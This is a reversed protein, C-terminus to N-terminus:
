KVKVVVFTIDDQNPQCDCWNEGALVLEQIIERSSKNASERFASQVRDYNFQEKNSDFLEVLGDSLFLLADGKKLDLEKLEYDLDVFAGLPMGKLVIKDVTRNAKRFHFFPPMGASSAILKNNKIKILTLAMFLNGFKMKKITRTCKEFMELIDLHQADSTFAWKIASVMIGAKLGHGTADGVAINLTGDDSEFFDYYDGGVEAATKMYVAIELDPLDPVDNPLMSLQLKRAEELELTKRDDESKIFKAQAEAAQARLEAEVVKSKERERHILRKRQVRDVALVGAVFILAYFIFAWKTRWVPPSVTIQISAGEENWIADNNSGKVRFIYTGPNLNTFTVYHRNGASVWEKNFKELKYAFQNKKPFTYCLAAFDISFSNQDYSLQINEGLDEKLSVRSVESKNEAKNLVQFDTIVIPPIFANDKVSDPFFYNFGNIGGFYMMRDSDMYYSMVNFENSQLGDSVDFNRIDGTEPNFRALGSNTSVWLNKQNDELIGHIVNNPLGDKMTYNSFTENKENFENLGVTTGVWITGAKDESLSIIDNSSISGYQSTDKKFRKFKKKIPDFRNLGNSTGIWLAGERDMLLTKISNNSLSEDNEPNNFYRKFVGRDPDFHNLGNVTGIWLMGDDDRIITTINNHSLSNADNPNHFYTKIKKLQQDYRNLGSVTGIWLVGSNEWLLSQIYFNSLLGNDDEPTFHEFENLKPDYKNLGLGTGYWIAGNNDVTIARVNNYGHGEPYGYRKVHAFKNAMPNYKNIGGGSTGIWLAGARDMLLSIVKNNSLSAPNLPDNIYNTFKGTNKDFKNLGWQWTGVWINGSKDEAICKMYNRWTSEPQGQDIRFHTFTEKEPNFKELGGDTTIWLAGNRDEHISTIWDDILSEPNSPEHTYHKFSNTERDFYNLGGRGADLDGTGIWLRGSMDEHIASIFNHSISNPDDEDHTFRTFSNGDDELRNLGEATGIWLYGDSDQFIERIENSSLSKENEPVHTYHVFTETSKDFKNLGSYTGVWIFGDNDEYISWIFHNSISTTDNPEYRYVTFKYGDFKNLGDQTGFWLYGESDQMMCNVVSQSLGQELSLREFRIDQIQAFGNVSFIILFLIRIEIKIFGHYKGTESRKNMRNMPIDRSPHIVLQNIM